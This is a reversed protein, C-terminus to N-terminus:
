KFVIKQQIHYSVFFLFSDVLVKILVEVNESFLRVFLTVLVASCIMQVIVLAFYKIASSTIGKRCMFVYKRNICYNYVSSIVRAVITASTIYLVSNSNKLLTCVFAFVILDVISSSLSSFIYRFFKEGLIKYIKISDKVPKFHTQHNDKSDYITKIPVEIITYRDAADLLMRMEFEFREGKLDLLEKMYERPIGRLGTQTDTVRIGSVYKFVKETLSNGFRSKWPVEESDFKRVGLVLCKEEVAEVIRKICETSHQGDSDATVM